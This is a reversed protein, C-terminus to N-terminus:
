ATIGMARLKEKIKNNIYNKICALYESRPRYVVSRKRKVGIQHYKPKVAEKCHAHAEKLLEAMEERTLITTVERTYTKKPM